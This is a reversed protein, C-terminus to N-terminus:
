CQHVGLLLDDAVVAVVVDFMHSALVVKDKVAMLVM